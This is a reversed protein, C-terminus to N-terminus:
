QNMLWRNNQKHFSGITSNFTKTYPEINIQIFASNESFDFQEISIYNDICKEKLIRESLIIVQKNLRNLKFENDSTIEYYEKMYITSDLTTNIEIQDIIQQLMKNVIPKSRKSNISVQPYYINRKSSIWENARTKCYDYRSEIDIICDDVILFKKHNTHQFSFASNDLDLIITDMNVRFHGKLSTNGLHGESKIEFSNDYDLHIVWFTGSWFGLYNGQIRLRSSHSCSLTLTFLILTIKKM